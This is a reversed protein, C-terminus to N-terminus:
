FLGQICSNDVPLASAVEDAIYGYMLEIVSDDVDEMDSGCYLDAWVEPYDRQFSMDTWFACGECIPREKCYACLEERKEKTSLM